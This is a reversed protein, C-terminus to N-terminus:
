MLVCPTSCATCIFLYISSNILDTQIFRHPQRDLAQRLIPCGAGSERKMLLGCRGLGTVAGIEFFVHGIIPPVM